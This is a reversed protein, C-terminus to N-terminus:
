KEKALVEAREINRKLSKVEAELSDFEKGEDENLGRKEKQATEALSEMRLVADNLLKRLEKLDV